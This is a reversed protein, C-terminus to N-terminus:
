TRDRWFLKSEDQSLYVKKEHPNIAGEAFKTMYM